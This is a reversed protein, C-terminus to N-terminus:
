RLFTGTAVFVYADNQLVVTTPQARWRAILAEVDAAPLPWGGGYPPKEVLVLHCPAVPSTTAARDLVYTNPLDALKPLLTMGVLMAPGARQRASARAHALSTQRASDLVCHFVHTPLDKQALEYAEHAVRFNVLGLAVFTAWLLRRPVERHRCAPLLAVVLGAVTVAHYHHRWRLCLFRLALPPAVLLLYPWIGRLARKRHLWWLLPVLPAVFAFPRAPFGSAAFRSAVFAWAGAHLGSAPDTWYTTVQGLVYPRVAFAFAAWAAALALTAYAWRRQDRQLLLLALPLGVFPFEEKCALLLAFCVTGTVYRRRELAVVLWVWPAMAWTTPHVPYHMATVVGPNLLTACALLTALRATLVGDRQLIFFPVVALLAFVSEVVVAGYPYPLLQAVPAAVLLIPDFHDNFLRLGRASLDPNFQRWGLKYLGEAYIGLDYYPVCDLYVKTLVHVTVLSLFAIAVPLYGRWPFCNFIRAAKQWM